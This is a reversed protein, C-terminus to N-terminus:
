PFPNVFSVDKMMVMMMECMKRRSSHASKLHSSHSHPCYIKSVRACGENEKQGVSNIHFKAAIQLLCIIIRSQSHSENEDTTCILSKLWKEHMSQRIQPNQLLTKICSNYHTSKSVVNEKNNHTPAYKVCTNISKQGLDIKDTKRQLTYQIQFVSKDL